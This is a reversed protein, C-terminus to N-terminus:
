NLAGGKTDWWLSEGLDTRVPANKNLNSFESPYPFLRPFTGASPTKSAGQMEQPHGTRRMANYIEIGNSWAALRFEKVIINM